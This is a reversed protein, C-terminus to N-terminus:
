RMWGLGQEGISLPPHLVKPKVPSVPMAFTLALADADDPSACGREVMSQKSEIVLKGSSNIHYGPGTLDFEMKQDDRQSPLMGRLLWDKLAHWMYARMNLQHQNPSHGGFNVEHVQKFGMTHLREVIPAGFASDVFMAAIKREPRPDSLIEAARAVLVSRDRAHEGPIRVPPISRADIGKRFRFVNWAAGGGSVDFGCILPDDALPEGVRKQAENVRDQDIFQLESARPPLGLVRVRVFDSDPGYDEIWKAILEKNTFRSQRGDTCRTNWGERDSGFCVRWLKGTNRIPQGWIFQMPEGDTLGGEMVEFIEDPVLSAEDAEYWSTSTRAHQGAFAQANEAKCTQPTVKWTDPYRKHYIGSSQIDFWHATICLKGWYQMAAWTREDLQTYTGATVTGTSHPRTSLIWWGIWAGKASKGTGHGSTEAMRIPLVPNSGDFGRSRVLEGLDKLFATQIADPGPEKELPGPQGWPFAFHVFGLPDAYFEAVAQALKLDAQARPLAPANM